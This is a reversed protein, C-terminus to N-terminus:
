NRPASAGAFLARVLCSEIERNRGARNASRPPM